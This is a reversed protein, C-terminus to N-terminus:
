QASRAKNVPIVKAEHEAEQAALVLEILEALESARDRTAHQYRMAADVTSHGAFAQVEAITAGTAAYLTLASHRLDHFRLDPHGVAKRAKDWQGHWVHRRLPGGHLGTFLLSDPGPEDMADIHVKLAAAVSQPLSITRRSAASKPDGFHITGRPPLEQMQREIRLTRGLLDVHRVALGLVEGLRLGCVGALLVLAKRDAAVQEALEQIVKPPVTPRETPTEVGANKIQCPNAVIRGDAVATNLIVRLLRYCKAVTNKGLGAKIRGAYWRRVAETDLKGLPVSGLHPVIHLRLESEYLEVTRPRLDVRGDLWERSYDRLTIRGRNPDVLGGRAKDVRTGDLFDRAETARTFSKKRQTGDPLRYRVDYRLSGDGLRRATIGTPLKRSM